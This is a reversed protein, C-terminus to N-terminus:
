PKTTATSAAHPIVAPETKKEREVLPKLYLAPGDGNAIPYARLRDLPEQAEYSLRRLDAKQTESFRSGYVALIAQYRAEAEAKGEASLSPSDPTQTTPPVANPSPVALTGAPVMTAASVIAARRAFERRSISSSSKGNM